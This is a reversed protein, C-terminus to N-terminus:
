RHANKNKELVEKNLTGDPCRGSFFDLTQEVVFVLSDICADEGLGAIHPTLVVNEYKMLKSSGQIPEHPFVDIGAGCIIKKEIAEELADIDVVPGRSTNILYSGKKMKKFVDTNILKTTSEILPVHCSLFDSKEVVEDFSKYFVGNEAAFREDRTPDTAIVDMGFVKAKKAVRKGIDGLGIIGLTNGRLYGTPKRIEGWEGTRVKRDFFNLERSVSLILALTHEAVSNANQGRATTVLIGKKTAEEVDISNYGVGTRAILRLDKAYAFTRKNYPDGSPFTAVVGPLGDILEEETLDRGFSNIKVTFGYERLPSLYADYDKMKNIWTTTIWVIGKDM